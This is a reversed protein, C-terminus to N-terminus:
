VIAVALIAGSPARLTAQYETFSGVIRSFDVRTNHPMDVFAKEQTLHVKFSADNILQRAKLVGIDKLCSFQRM